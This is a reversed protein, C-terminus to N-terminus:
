KPWNIPTHPFKNCLMNCFPCLHRSKSTRLSASTSGSNMEQTPLGRMRKLHLSTPVAVYLDSLHSMKGLYFSM